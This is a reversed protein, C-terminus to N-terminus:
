EKTVAEDLNLITHCLAALAAHETADLKDSRPSEGVALLKKAATLDAAYQTRLRKLGSLLVGREESTPHRALVLRFALDIRREDSDMAKTAVPSRRPTLGGTLGEV